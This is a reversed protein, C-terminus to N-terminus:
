EPDAALPCTTDLLLRTKSAFGEKFLGISQEKADPRSPEGAYNRRGLRYWTIGRAKMEEIALAQVLHGIPSRFLSRDYIGTAYSASAHSCHFIGAGVLRANADRLLVAFAEGANICAGQAKWTAISRTERGAIAAHFRRLEDIQADDAERLIETRWLRRAKSILPRYSKRVNAWLADAPQSLDCWLDHTVAVTAGAEMIRRHWEGIADDDLLARGRWQEEGVLRCIDEVVAFCTRALRKEIRASVDPRFSPPLVPGMNSGCRLRGELCQLNFPWIGCPIGDNYIVVSLEHTGPQAERNYSVFYAMLSPVYETTHPTGARLVLRWDDETEDLHRVILGHAAALAVIDPCVTTKDVIAM